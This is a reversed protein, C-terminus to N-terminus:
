LRTASEESSSKLNLLSVLEVAHKVQHPPELLFVNDASLLQVVDLLSQGNASGLRLADYGHAANLM